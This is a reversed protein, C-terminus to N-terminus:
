PKSPPDKAVDSAEVAEITAGQMDMPRGCSRCNVSSKIADAVRFKHVEGCTLCKAIAWVTGAGDVHLHVTKMVVIGPSTPNDLSKCSQAIAIGGARVDCSLRQPHIGATKGGLVRALGTNDDRLFRQVREVAASSYIVGGAETACLRVPFLQAL